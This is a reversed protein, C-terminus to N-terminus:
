NSDWGVEAFLDGIWEQFVEAVADVDDESPSVFPRAPIFAGQGASGGFQHIFAYQGADGGIAMVAEENDINWADLSTAEERLNGTRNLIPDSSFGELERRMITDATLEQWPGDENGEQDFNRGISPALVQEISRAFPENFDEFAEAVERLENGVAILGPIAEIRLM